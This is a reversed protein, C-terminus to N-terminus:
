LLAGEEKNEKFQKWAGQELSSSFRVKVCSTREQCCWDLYSEPPKDHFRPIRDGSTLNGTCDPYPLFISPSSFQIKV